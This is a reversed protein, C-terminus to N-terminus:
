PFSFTLGGANRKKRAICDFATYSRPHGVHLGKGSPYPFEILAYFKELSTDDKANFIAAEDWKKQWKPEIEKPNYEKAM